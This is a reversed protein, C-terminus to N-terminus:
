VIIANRGTLSTRGNIGDIVKDVITEEGIKVTVHNDQNALRTIATALSDIANNTTSNQVDVTAQAKATMKSFEDSIDATGLEAFKPARDFASVMAVGLNRASQELNGTESAIGKSVGEAFFGGAKAMVRSPSHIQLAKNYSVKGANALERAANEVVWKNNLIGRAVGNDFNNGAPEMKSWTNFAEDRISHFTERIKHGLKETEDIWGSFGTNSKDLSDLINASMAKAEEATLTYSEGSKLAFTHTGKTLDLLSEYVSDYNGKMVKERQEAEFTASVERMVADHYKDQADAAATVKDSLTKMQAQLRGEAIEAELHAKTLEEQSYKGSDLMNKYKERKRTADQTLELLRLEADNASLQSNQVEDIAMKQDRSARAARGTAEALLDQQSRYNTAVVDAIEIASKVLEFVAVAGAIALTVMGATSTLFTFAGNLANGAVTALSAAGHFATTGASIGAMGVATNTMLGPMVALEAGLAGLTGNVIVAIANYTFLAASAVGIAVAFDTIFSVIPQQKAIWSLADGIANLVSVIVGGTFAAIPALFNTIFPELVTSWLNGILAGLFELAGGVTNLFAPLLTNGAWNIFPSLYKKWIDSLIKGIPELFKKVQSAFKQISKGIKEFDWEGFAEAFFAKIKGAIEAIKDEAKSLGSTDWEYNMVAPSAGGTGGAGAGASGGATEKEQLVNMEDFKALQKQLKKASGTADKLGGSIGSAANAGGALAKGAGETAKVIGSTSGSGGFGFLAGLWAVAEKIIRVFAAVYNAATAIASGIGNFIGAINSQGIENIVTALGNQITYKLSLMATGVGATSNQAQKAFSDFNAGGTKNLRILTLMFDDMSAKGSQLASYLDSSSVYGMAQATQKLQAPMAQLLVKWDQMEPKGKAYAQTLQEIASARQEEAGGGALVANNMALFMDTSAKINGNTATLRKVAATADVIDTPLGELGKKLLAISTGSDEISVGLGSMVNSYSKLSDLRTIAGDLEHSIASIGKAIVAGIASGIASGKILGGMSLASQSVGKIDKQAEKTAKKLGSEDGTIKVAIKNIDSM